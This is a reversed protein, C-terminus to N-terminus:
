ARRIVVLRGVLEAPPPEQPPEIDIRSGVGQVARVGDRLAVFGKVRLAGLAALRERLADPEAGDPVAIEEAAFREHTHPPAPAAAERRRARLANPDPPFLLGPDVDGHVARLIPAEPEIARLRAELDDRVGEPVRDVQNLVLLDASTVQQEFTGELERGAHLQEANVVVVAVDDSIWARVPDRWFNLQTDYPLAVGSTEVVIRDPNARERLMELTDVLQDSLKCCVCGGRLEVYDDDLTGLLAADIGLEGFENSVVAVRVGNAQADALLKRVLTTKGSGLFGSVVLVPVSVPRSM